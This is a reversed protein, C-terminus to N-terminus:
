RKRYLYTSRTNQPCRGYGDVVCFTFQVNDSNVQRNWISSDLTQSIGSFTIKEIVYHNIYSGRNNGTLIQETNNNVYTLKDSEGYYKNNRTVVFSNSNCDTPIAIKNEVYKARNLCSPVVFDSVTVTTPKRGDDYNTNVTLNVDLPKVEGTTVGEQSGTNVDVIDITVSSTRKDAALKATGNGKYCVREGGDKACTYYISVDYPFCTSLLDLSVSGGSIQSFSKYNAVKNWDSPQVDVPFSKNCTSGQDSSVFLLVGEVAPSTPKRISLQSLQSAGAEGDKVTKCSMAAFLSMGLLTCLLISLRNKM